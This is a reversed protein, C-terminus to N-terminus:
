EHGDAQWSFNKRYRAPTVGYIRRFLKGFYNPDSFGCLQAITQVQLRSTKLLELAAKMRQTTIHGTLTQGTERRFLASLYSPSINQAQALTELRLDGSLNMEIYTLAKQVIASFQRAGHTRVLRSYSRMMDVILEHAAMLTPTNEIMRAYRGSFRDLYLPHVGGREAAKRLLTNCIICYNKMSRLPDPTRQQFSLHSVSSMMSDIKQTLGRAVSDMLENEYAYHKELQSMRTLVDTQEAVAGASLSGPISSQQDYNVDVTSFAEASGWLTEGLTNVVAMIASPDHHVPLSAYYDTMAAHYALPVGLKEALELLMERSPDITLYPGIVVAAPPHSRPLLFYIYSCMFLDVTKYITNPESWHSFVSQAQAYDAEMGLMRRFGSDLSELTDGPHLMHVQLRLKRLIETTFRMAAETNM